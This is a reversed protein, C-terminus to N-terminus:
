LLNLENLKIIMEVCADVLNDYRKTCFYKKNNYIEVYCYSISGDSQKHSETGVPLINLLAALSWCAIRNFTHSYASNEVESDDKVFPVTGVLSGTKKITLYEMDASELPLIEALRKSQAIDAYTKM